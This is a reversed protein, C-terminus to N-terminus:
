PGVRLVVVGCSHSAYGHLLDAELSLALAAGPSYPSFAHSDELTGLGLASCTVGQKYDQQQLGFEKSYCELSGGEDGDEERSGSGRSQRLWTLGRCGRVWGLVRGQREEPGIVNELHDTTSLLGHKNFWWSTSSASSHTLCARREQLKWSLLPSWTAIIIM